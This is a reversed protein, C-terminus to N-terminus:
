IVDVKEVSSKSPVAHKNKDAREAIDYDIHTALLM